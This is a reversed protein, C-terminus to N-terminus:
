RNIIVLLNRKVICAFPYSIKGCVSLAKRKPATYPDRLIERVKIESFYGLSKKIMTKYQVIGSENDLTSIRNGATVCITFMEMTYPVVWEPAYEKLYDLLECRVYLYDLIKNYFGYFSASGARTRYMYLVDKVRAIKGAKVVVCPSWLADQCLRGSLFLTDKILSARYLGKWIYAGSDADLIRRMEEEISSIRFAPGASEKPPSNLLEELATEDDEVFRRFECFAIDSDSENITQYLVKYMDPVILDDGDIFGIYKGRALRMAKNRSDSLGQNEQHIVSIRPDTKAYKDCVSGTGDTSGDDILILEWDSYTQALVTDLCAPLYQENNFVAIIISITPMERMGDSEANKDTIVTDCNCNMGSM